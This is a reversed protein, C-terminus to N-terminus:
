AIAQVKENAAMSRYANEDATITDKKFVLAKNVLRMYHKVALVADKEPESNKYARFQVNQGLRIELTSYPEYTESEKNYKRVFVIIIERKAMKSFYRGEGVCQKLAGGYEVFEQNGTPIHFQYDGVVENDLHKIEKYFDTYKKLEIEDKILESHKAAADHAKQLNKPFFVRKDNLNYGNNEAMDIYDSYLNLINMNVKEGDAQAVIYRVVKHLSPKVKQCAKIFAIVKFSNSKALTKLFRFDDDRLSLKEETYYKFFRVLHANGELLYTMLHKPVGLFDAPTTADKNVEYLYSDRLFERVISHYGAKILLEIQPYDKLKDTFNYCNKAFNLFLKLDSERINLDGDAYSKLFKYSCFTIDNEKLYWILNNPLRLLNCISDASMDFLNKGTCPSSVFESILSYLGNNKLIEIQPYYKYAVEVFDDWRVFVDHQAIEKYLTPANAPYLPGRVCRGWNGMSRGRYWGNTSWYNRWEWKKMKGNEITERLHEFYCLTDTKPDYTANFHRIVPVGDVTAIFYPWLTSKGSKKFQNRLWNEQRNSLVNTPVKNHFADVKRREKDYKKSAVDSQKRDLAKVVDDSKECGLYSIACDENLTVTDYNNYFIPSSNFDNDPKMSRLLTTNWHKGQSLNIYGNYTKTFHNFSRVHRGNKFYVDCVLLRKHDATVAHFDFVVDYKKFLKSLNEPVPIQVKRLERKNFM